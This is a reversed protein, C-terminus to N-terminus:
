TDCGHDSAEGHDNDEHSKHDPLRRGALGDFKLVESIVTPSVLLHGVRVPM